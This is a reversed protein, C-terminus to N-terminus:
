IMKKEQRHNCIEFHARFGEHSLRPYKKMSKKCITRCEKDTHVCYGNEYFVCEEIRNIM